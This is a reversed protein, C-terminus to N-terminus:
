KEKKEELPVGFISALKECAQKFLRRYERRTESSYPM